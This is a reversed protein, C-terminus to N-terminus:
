WSPSGATNEIIAAGCFVERTVDSSFHASPGDNCFQFRFMVCDNGNANALKIPSMKLWVISFGSLIPHNGPPAVVNPIM